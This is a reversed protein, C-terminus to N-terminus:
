AVVSKYFARYDCVAGGYVHRIKYQLQDNSFLAGSKPNDAVFLEPEEAGDLFGIELGPIEMPDAVAAWDTGDTFWPVPIIDPALSQIFTKDNETTRRFMDVATRELAAPVLLSKIGIWLPEGSDMEAQAYMALRAAELSDESLAATGLNGHDAHFLTKTDYIAGNASIFAYVFKSLTRKAARSLKIPIQRVAGVDDNKIMELSLTELGGRKSVAYEAKEDSPSDLATYDGNEAVVPLDGYGGWRTREQTRFDHVPVVNTIRRWSDFVTQTQYDALLRRNIGDGLVDALTDSGLAETM